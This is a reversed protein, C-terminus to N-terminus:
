WIDNIFPSTADANWARGAVIWLRDQSDKGSAMHQRPIPMATATPVGRVSPLVAASAAAPGSLTSGHMWTMTDNAVSYLWSSHSLVVILGYVEDASPCCLRLLSCFQHAVCVDNKVAGQVNGGFLVISGQVFQCAHGYRGGMVASAATVPVGYGQSYVPLVDFGASGAQWTWIKSNWSWVDGLQNSGTPNSAGGIVWAIGQADVIACGVFRSGPNTSSNGVRRTGWVPNLTSNVTNSGYLLTWQRTHRTYRWLDNLIFLAFSGGQFYLNGDAGLWSQAGWRSRPMDIDSTL